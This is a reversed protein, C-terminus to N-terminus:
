AASTALLELTAERSTAGGLKRRPLNNVRLVAEDLNRNAGGSIRLVHAYDSVIAAHVALSSKDQVRTVAVVELEVLTAQILEADVRFTALLQSLGHQLFGSLDQLQIQQKGELIPFNLYTRDSM